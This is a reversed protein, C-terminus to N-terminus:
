HWVRRAVEQYAQLRIVTRHLPTTAWIVSAQQVRRCFRSGVGFPTMNSFIMLLRLPAPARMASIEQMAKFGGTKRNLTTTLTTMCYKCALSESYPDWLDTMTTILLHPGQLSGLRSAAARDAHWLNPPSEPTVKFSGKKRECDPNHHTLTRISANTATLM